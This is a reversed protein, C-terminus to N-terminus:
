GEGGQCPCTERHPKPMSAEVNAFVRFGLAEWQAPTRAEERKPPPPPSPRPKVYDPDISGDARRNPAPQPKKHGM